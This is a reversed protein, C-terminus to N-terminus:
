AAWALQEGATPEREVKVVHGGRLAAALTEARDKDHTTCVQRNRAYVIYTTM